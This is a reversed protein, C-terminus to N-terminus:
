YVQWWARKAWPKCAYVTAATAEQNSLTLTGERKQFEYRMSVHTSQNETQVAETTRWEKEVDMKMADKSVKLKTVERVQAGGDELRWPTTTYQTTLACLPENNNGLVCFGDNKLQVIQQKYLRSEGEQPYAECFYEKIPAETCATLGVLLM